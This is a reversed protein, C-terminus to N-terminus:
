FKDVVLVAAGAAEAAQIGVVSDEFIITDMQSIGFHKMAQLYGEPDPKMKTVDEHTFVADFLKERGFAQLIDLCNQRSATTVVALYAREKMAEALMFLSSNERAKELFTAYLMKKRAHIRSFDERRVGYQPLFETYHKGNSHKCFDDHDLTYGLEQMAAAYAHYNVEKTDYLTGDLDFLLLKEKKNM